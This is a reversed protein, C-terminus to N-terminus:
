PLDFAHEPRPRDPGIELILVFLTTAKPDEKEEESEDIALEGKWFLELETKEVEPRLRKNKIL